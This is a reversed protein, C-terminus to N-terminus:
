YDASKFLMILIWVLGGVAATEARSGGFSTQEIKTRPERVFTVERGAWATPHAPGTLHSLRVVVTDGRLAVLTGNMASVVLVTDASVAIGYPQFFTVKVEAGPSPDVVPHKGCAVAGVALVFATLAFASRACLRRSGTDDTM